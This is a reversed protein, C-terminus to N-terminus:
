TPFPLQDEVGSFALQGVLPGRIGLYRYDPGKKSHGVWNPVFGVEAVGSGYSGVEGQGKAEFPVM